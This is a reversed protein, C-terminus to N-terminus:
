HFLFPTLFIKYHRVASQANTQAVRERQLGGHSLMRGRDLTGSYGSPFPGHIAQMCQRSLVSHGRAALFNWRCSYSWQHFTEPSSSQVTCTLPAAIHFVTVWGVSDTLKNLCHQWYSLSYPVLVMLSHLTPFATSAAIVTYNSASYWCRSALFSSLMVFWLWSLQCTTWSKFELDGLCLIYGLLPIYKGPCWIFFESNMNM